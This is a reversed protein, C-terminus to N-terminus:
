NTGGQSLKEFHLLILQLRSRQVEITRLIKKLRRQVESHQILALQTTVITELDDLEKLDALVGGLIRVAM